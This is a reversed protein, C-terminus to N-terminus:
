PLPPLESLYLRRFTRRSDTMLGQASWVMRTVGDSGTAIDLDTNGVTGQDLVHTNAPFAHNVAVIPDFLDDDDLVAVVYKGDPTWTPGASNPLVDRLLLKPGQIHQPRVVYLDFRDPDEHNAYFALTTGDPSFTPRTQIRPWHTLQVEGPTGPTVMWLNDGSASHAVYVIRDASPSWTAYVESSGDRSTLQEPEGLLNALDLKYLDGEGTRASTFVVSRGDPSWAPGGDAEPGVVAARGGGFFLDYDQGNASSAYIYTGIAAPSWSLEHVVAPGASQTAFGQTLGSARSAGHVPAFASGDVPGVYATIRKTEHDNAEYAIRDGDPSFSPVQIHAGDHEALQVPAAHALGMWWVCWALTM